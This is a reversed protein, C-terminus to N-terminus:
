RKEYEAPFREDIYKRINNKAQANLSSIDRSITSENVQFARAIDAQSPGKSSLDLVHNKRWLAQITVNM